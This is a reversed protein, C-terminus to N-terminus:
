DMTDRTRDSDMGAQPSVTGSQGSLAVSDAGFDSNGAISPLEAGGAGSTGPMEGQTETDAELARELSLNQAGNRALQRTAPKSVQQSASESKQQEAARSALILAFTVTQDNSAASLVAEQTGPAFGAFETRIEYHSDPPVNLSWAGNIGTTTSYRKGTATNQATVTVGPLPINGSQVVGHLKGGSPVQESEARPTATEASAPNAAGPAVTEVPAQAWAALCGAAVIGMWAAWLGTRRM